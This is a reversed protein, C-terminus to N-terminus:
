ARAADGWRRVEFVFLRQPWFEAPDRSDSRVKLPINQSSMESIATPVSMVSRGGCLASRAGNPCEAGVEPIQRRLARPAVSSPHPGRPLTGSDPISCVAISKSPLSIGEEHSPFGGQQQVSCCFGAVTLHREGLRPKAKRATERSVPCKTRGDTSLAPGSGRYIYPRHLGVRAYYYRRYILPWEQAYGRGRRRQTASLKTPGAKVRRRGDAGIVLVSM